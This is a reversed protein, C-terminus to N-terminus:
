TEDDAYMKTMRIRYRFQTGRGPGKPGAITLLILPLVFEDPLRAIGGSEVFADGLNVRKYRDFHLNPFRQFLDPKPAPM